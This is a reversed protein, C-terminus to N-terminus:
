AVTWISAATTLNAIEALQAKNQESLIRSQTECANFQTKPVFGCGVAPWGDDLWTAPDTVIEVHPAGDASTVTCGNRSFAVDRITRGIRLRYRSGAPLPVDRLRAPLSEIM